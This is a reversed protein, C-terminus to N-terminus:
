FQLESQSGANKFLPWGLSTEACTVENLPRMRYFRSIVHFTIDGNLQEWYLLSWLMWVSNRGQMILKFEDWPSCWLSKLYFHVSFSVHIEKLWFCWIVTASMFPCALHGTILKRCSSIKSFNQVITSIGYSENDRCFTAFQGCTSSSCTQLDVIPLTKHLFTIRVCYSWVKCTAKHQRLHSYWVKIKGHKNMWLIASWRLRLNWLCLRRHSFYHFMSNCKGIIVIQM